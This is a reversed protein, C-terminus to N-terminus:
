QKREAGALKTFKRPRSRNRFLCNPIKSWGVAYSHFSSYGSSAGSWSSLRQRGIRIGTRSESHRGHVQSSSPLFPSLPAPPSGKSLPELLVRSIKKSSREKGPAFLRWASSPPLILQRLLSAPVCDLIHM